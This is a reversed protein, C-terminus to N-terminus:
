YLLSNLLWFAVGIIIAFLVFCKLTRIFGYIMPTIILLTAAVATFYYPFISRVSEMNSTVMGYVLLAILGIKAPFAVWLYYTAERRHDKVWYDDEPTAAAARM